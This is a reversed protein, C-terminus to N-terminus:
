DRACFYRPENELPSSNEEGKNTIMIWWVRLPQGSTPQLAHRFWVSGPQGLVLEQSEVLAHQDNAAALLLQGFRMLPAQDVASAVGIDTLFGNRGAYARVKFLVVDDEACVAAVAMGQGLPHRRPLQNGFQVAALGAARAAAAAAHVQKRGFDAHHPRAADDPRANELGGA